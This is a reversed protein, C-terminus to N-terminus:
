THRNANANKNNETVDSIKRHLWTNIPLRGVTGQYIIVLVIARKLQVKHKCRGYICQCCTSALLELTPIAFADCDSPHAIACIVTSIACIFKRTGATLIMHSSM